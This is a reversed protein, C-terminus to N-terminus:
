ADISIHTTQLKTKNPMMAAALTPQLPEQVLDSDWASLPSHGSCFGWCIGAHLLKFKTNCSSTAFQWRLRTTASAQLGVCSQAPNGSVNWKPFCSGLVTKKRKNNKPLHSNNGKKQYYIALRDTELRHGTKLDMCKQQFPILNGQRILLSKCFEMKMSIECFNMVKRESLEIIWDGFSSVYMSMPRKISKSKRFTSERFTSVPPFTTNLNGSFLNTSAWVARTDWRLDSGACHWVRLGWGDEDKADEAEETESRRTLQSRASTKSFLFVPQYCRTYGWPRHCSKM